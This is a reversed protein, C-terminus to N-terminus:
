AGYEEQGSRRDANLWDRTEAYPEFGLRMMEEIITNYMAFRSCNILRLVFEKDFTLKFYKGEEDCLEEVESCNVHPDYGFMFCIRGDLFYEYDNNAGFALNLCPLIFKAIKSLTDNIDDYRYFRFVVDSFIANELGNKDLEETYLLKKAVEEPINIFYASGPGNCPYSWMGISAGYVMQVDASQFRIKRRDFLDLVAHGIADYQSESVVFGRELYAIRRSFKEKELNKEREEIMQLVLTTVVGALAVLGLLLNLTSWRPEEKFISVLASALTVGLLMVQLKFKNRSGGM